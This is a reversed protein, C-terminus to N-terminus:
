DKYKNIFWQPINYRHRYESWPLKGESLLGEEVEQLTPEHGLAAVLEKDEAMIARIYHVTSHPLHVSTLSSDKRRIAGYLAVLVDKAIDYQQVM